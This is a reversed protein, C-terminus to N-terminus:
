LAAADDDDHTVTAALLQETNRLVYLSAAATVGLLVDGDTSDGTEALAAGIWRSDVRLSHPRTSASSSSSSSSSCGSDGAAPPRDRKKSICGSVVQSNSGIAYCRHVCESAVSPFVGCTQAM